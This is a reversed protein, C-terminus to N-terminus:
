INKLCMYMCINGSINDRLAQFDNAKHQHPSSSKIAFSRCSGYVFMSKRDNSYNQRKLNLNLNQRLLPVIINTFRRTNAM